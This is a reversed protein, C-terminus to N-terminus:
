EGLSGPTEGTELEQPVSPGPTWTVSTQGDVVHIWIQGPVFSITTGLATHFLLPDQKHVESKSWTGTIVQGNQYVEVTGSGEVNVDNYGGPGKAFQQEAHMVILVKPDVPRNDVGDLHRSGGWSREYANTEANYVYRVRMVGPWGIDLTGSGREAPQADPVHPYGRFTSYTRYDLKQLADWLRDYTTYGNYPGPLRSIRFYAGHPNRIADISEYIPGGNKAREFRIRNLAHYSGGWHALVADLGKALFLYDHRASRVGGIERPRGCQYVAMQRTVNNVLAPMEVILDAEAMGSLPRAVPDSGLMVAIPRRKYAEGCPLGAILSLNGGSKPETAARSGAEPFRGLARRISEPAGPLGVAYWVVAFLLMLASAAGFVLPALRKQNQLVSLVKPAGSGTGAPSPAEPAGLGRRIDMPM